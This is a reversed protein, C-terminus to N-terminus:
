SAGALGGLIRGVTALVQAFQPWDVFIDITRWFVDLLPPFLYKPFYLSAIQWLVALAVFPAAVEALRRFHSSIAASLRAPVATM